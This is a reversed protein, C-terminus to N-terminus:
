LADCWLYAIHLVLQMRIIDPLLANLFTTRAAVIRLPYGIARIHVTRSPCGVLYVFVSVTLYFQSAYGSVSSAASLSCLLLWMM